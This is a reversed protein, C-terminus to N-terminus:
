RGAPATKAVLTEYLAVIRAAKADWTFTRMVKERAAAGLADLRQPSRVLSDIAAEFGAFLSAQDTFPVRIGTDDDVLESPGAYDAIVPTVGLAMAELVVGGGFERVSPLALFDCDVVIDQVDQHRVWGHFTVRQRLGMADVMAELMPRQPGDGAIELTLRGDALFRQAARILIDAGKYPVLRGVFVAKVPLGARRDRVKSFREPDIGNEPLYICKPRAWGPMQACTHKSGVLLATSYRRMARYYPMLAYARRIHSLWEREAHQRAVFGKPWPVGGNLPGVVFPVGARFLRKALLSQSTPSVPTIRHVLDFAGERLQAGFKRWVEFEFAYYAISSFAALTTWGVGEGGRLLSSFKYLPKAAYENDIATFDRGETLGARLFAERNRIQTVIHAETL